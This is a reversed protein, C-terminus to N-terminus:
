MCSHYMNRKLRPPSPPCSSTAGGGDDRYAGAAAAAIAAAMRRDAERRLRELMASLVRTSRDSTGLMSRQRQIWRGKVSHYPIHQHERYPLLTEFRPDGTEVDAVIDYLRRECAAGSVPRPYSERAQQWSLIGVCCVEPDDVFRRQWCWHCPPGVLFGAVRRRPREEVGTRRALLMLASRLNADLARSDM